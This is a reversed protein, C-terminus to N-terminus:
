FKYGKNEWLIQMKIQEQDWSYLAVVKVEEADVRYNNLM